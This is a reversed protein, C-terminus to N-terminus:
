AKGRADHPNVWPQVDGVVRQCIMLGLLNFGSMKVIGDFVEGPEVDAMCCVPMLHPEDCHDCYDEICAVDETIFRPALIDLFRALRQLMTM